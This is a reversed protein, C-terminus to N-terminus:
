EEEKEEIIRAEYMIELKSLLKLDAKSIKDVAMKAFALSYWNQIKEYDKSSLEVEVM